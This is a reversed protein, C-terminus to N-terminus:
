AHLVGIKVGVLSQSREEPSEGKGWIAAQEQCRRPLILVLVRSFLIRLRAVLDNIGNIDIGTATDVLRRDGMKWAM